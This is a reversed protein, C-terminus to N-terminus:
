VSVTCPLTFNSNLDTTGAPCPACVRDSTRTPPVVQIFGPKCNTIDACVYDSTLGPPAVVYQYSACEHSPVCVSTNVDGYFSPAICAPVCTGLSPSCHGPLAGCQQHQLFLSEVCSSCQDLGGGQCVSCNVPCRQCYGNGDGYQGSPCNAVCLQRNIDFYPYMFNCASCGSGSTCSECSPDCPVCHPNSLTTCTGNLYANSSCASATTCPQCTRDSTPTPATATYMGTTCNSVPLCSSQGALSQYQTIGNCYICGGRGDPVQGTLQTCAAHCHLPTFLCALTQSM